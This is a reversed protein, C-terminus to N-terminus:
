FSFLHFEASATGAAADVARIVM